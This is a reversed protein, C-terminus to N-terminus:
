KEKVELQGIASLPVWQCECDCVAISLCVSLCVCVFVSVSVWEAMDKRNDNNDDM